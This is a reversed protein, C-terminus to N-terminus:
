KKNQPKLELKKHFGMHRQKQLELGEKGTIEEISLELICTRKIYTKIEELGETLDFLM